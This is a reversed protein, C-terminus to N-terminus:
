PKGPKGDDGTKQDDAPQPRKDTDGPKPAPMGAGPFGKGKPGGAPPGGPERPGTTIDTVFSGGPTNVFWIHTRGYRWAADGGSTVVEDQRGLIQEVETLKMGPRIKSTDVTRGPGVTYYAWIGGGVAAVLAVVAVAWTLPSTRPRPKRPTDTM